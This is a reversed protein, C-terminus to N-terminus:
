SGSDLLQEQIAMQLPKEIGSEDAYLAWKQIAAHVRDLQDKAHPIGVNKAVALLDAQGIHNRKGNVQLQHSNTWRGNPNYAYTIDYGPSLSWKGAKDMLFAFNKTHDDMNKAMVNFAMRRFLEEQESVSLHLTRMIEFLQEYSSAGAMNYDLHGIGCATLMHQKDGNLRDFRQTIFHARENEEILNCPMMTIGAEKAMLYYAYEIRGYTKSDTLSLDDVGDFKLIWHDYGEPATAQGSRIHGEKNMAIIAKPRAGGASTGVRLIDLLTHETEDASKGLYGQAADQSSIVKQALNALETLQIDVSGSLDKNVTPKFELAGMARNGVYCLREVPNFSALSRGQNILWTDILSNGFRDPLADALLGPLGWFTEKNLTPFSWIRKHQRITELPMTLPAINWNLQEFEPMFEFVAHGTDSQWSVVGVPTEWLTITALTTNNKNM